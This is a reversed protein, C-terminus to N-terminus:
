RRKATMPLAPPNALHRIAEAMYIRFLRFGAYYAPKQQKRNSLTRTGGSLVIPMESCVHPIETLNVM